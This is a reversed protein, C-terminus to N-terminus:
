RRGRNRCSYLTSHYSPPSSVTHFDEPYRHAPRSEIRSNGSQLDPLNVSSGVQETNHYDFVYTITFALLGFDTSRELQTMYHFSRVNWVTGMPRPKQLKRVPVFGREKPAPPCITQFTHLLNAKGLTRHQAPLNHHNYYVM